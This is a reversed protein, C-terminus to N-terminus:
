ILNELCYKIASECAKEYTDYNPINGNDIGNIIDIIFKKNDLKIQSINSNWGDITISTSIVLNHKKRLWKIAMQLTPRPAIGIEQSKGIKCIEGQLTYYTNCNNFTFGKEKLLKAVNFSVYDETIINM